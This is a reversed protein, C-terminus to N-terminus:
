LFDLRLSSEVDSAEQAVVFDTPIHLKDSNTARLYQRFRPAVRYRKRVWTTSFPANELPVLREQRILQL